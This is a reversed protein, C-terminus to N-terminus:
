KKGGSKIDNYEIRNKTFEALAFINVVPSAGLNISPFGPSRMLEKARRESCGLAKALQESNVFLKEIEVSNVEDALEKLNKLMEAEKEYNHSIIMKM